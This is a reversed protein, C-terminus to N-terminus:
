LTGKLVMRRVRSPDVDLWACWLLLRDNTPNSLFEQATHLTHTTLSGTSDYKQDVPVRRRYDKVARALVHVALKRYGEDDFM